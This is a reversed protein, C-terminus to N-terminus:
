YKVTFSDWKKIRQRWLIKDSPVGIEKLENMVEMAVDKDKIAVYIWDYEKNLIDEPSEIMRSCIRSGSLNKDVWASVFCLDKQIMEKYCKQGRIGAGYLIVTDEPGIGRYDSIEAGVNVWAEVDFLSKMGNFLMHLLFQKLQPEMVKKYKSTLLNKELNRKLYLVQTYYDDPKKRCMSTPVERYHYHCEDLISISRAKLMMPFVLAVDEGDIVKEDVSDIVSLILSREFVKNWVYQTVGFEYWNGTCMMVPYVITELAAKDYYGASVYNYTKYKKNINDRIVGEIVIESQNNQIEAAFAEYMEPEIWDDGDVFAIYDGTAEHVGQKRANVLGANKKHVVRIRQDLKAYRDLIASSSDTSGDDICIIELGEYTQNIISDLCEEIYNELNYVTVIVSFKIRDKM